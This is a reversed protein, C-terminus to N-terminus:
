GQRDMPFFGSIEGDEVSLLANIIPANAYSADGWAHLHLKMFQNVIEKGFQKSTIMMCRRRPISVLLEEAQLLQHAKQMHSKCLIKESSFENGSATIVKQQLTGSVEFDISVNELNIFAGTIIKQPDKGKIHEPTLFIFNSPANYGFAIVLDPNDETGFITQKLAGQKLGEWSGPKLIPYIETIAGAKVQENDAIAQKDQERQPKGFIKKLISM